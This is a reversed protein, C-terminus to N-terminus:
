FLLYVQGDAKIEAYDADNRHLQDAIDTEWDEMCQEGYNTFRWDAGKGKFKRKCMDSAALRACVRVWIDCCKQGDSIDTRALIEATTITRDPGTGDILLTFADSANM